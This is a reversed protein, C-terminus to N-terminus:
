GFCLGCDPCTTTTTQFKFGCAPCVAQRAEPNFVADCHSMDHQSLATTKDIYSQVVASADMADVRRVQLYFTSPCCNKQCSKEDGTIIADINEAKLEKEIAKIENLQGKHIAVLEEGQGLGSDGADRRENGRRAAALMESGTLLPSGCEACIEIDARYEDQCKQCYKLEPDIMM